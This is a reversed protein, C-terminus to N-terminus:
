TTKKYLDTYKIDHDKLWTENKKFLEHLDYPGVKVGHTAQYLREIEKKTAEVALYYAMEYRNTIEQAVYIRDGKVLSAQSKGNESYWRDNFILLDKSNKDKPPSKPDYEQVQWFFKGQNTFEKTEEDKYKQGGGLEDAKDKAWYGHTTMDKTCEIDGKENKVPNFSGCMTTNLGNKPDTAVTGTYLESIDSAEDWLESKNLGLPIFGCKKFSRGGGGIIEEFYGGRNQSDVWNSHAYFDALAHSNQGFANLIQSIWLDSSDVYNYDKRNDNIQKLSDAIWNDNERDTYSEYKSGRTPLGGIYKVKYIAGNNPNDFHNLPNCQGGGEIEGLFIPLTGYCNKGNADSHYNNLIIQSIIEDSFRFGKERNYQAFAARLIDGHGSDSEEVEREVYINDKGNFADDPLKFLGLPDIGAHPNGNLYVYRDKGDPTGLPDPSIYQHIQPNFYRHINYHLGTEADYYQGALRTNLTFSNTASPTQAEVPEARVTKNTTNQTLQNGWDDFRQQWLTQKNENTVQLPLGRWDTSVAYITNGEILSHLRHDLYLYQRTVNGGQSEEILKHANDYAFYTTQPPNTQSYVIKSVRNGTSDYRYRAILQQTSADLVAILQNATNWQLTLLKGANEGINPTHQTQRGFADLKGVHEPAPSNVKTTPTNTGSQANLAASLKVWLPVANKTAAKNPQWTTQIGNGHQVSQLAAITENFPQKQVQSILTNHTWSIPLTSAITNAFGQSTLNAVSTLWSRQLQISQTQGSNQKADYGYNLVQQTPLTRSLLKGSNDYSFQQTITSGPVKHKAPYVTQAQKIIQGFANRAFTQESSCGKLSQLLTGEYVLTDICPAEGDASLERTLLQGAFNFHLTETQTTKRDLGIRTQTQQEGAGLKDDHVPKFTTIITGDEPHQEYVIRGFDDRLQQRVIDEQNANNPRSKAELAQTIPMPFSTQSPATIVVGEIDSPTLTARLKGAEDRLWMRGDVVKGQANTSIQALLRDQQDYAWNLQEGQSNTLTTAQGQANYQMTQRNGDAGTHAIRRGFADYEAQLVTMKQQSNEDIEGEVNLLWATRTIHSPQNLSNASNSYNISTQIQRAGDKLTSAIVRGTGGVDAKAVQLSEVDYSLQTIVNNPAIVQTLYQGLKDYQYQTIDSDRPTNNKGNPLPGDVEVLLSRNNITRYRYTITRTIQTPTEEHQGILAPRYGLETVKTPQGHQNYTIHWQREKGAVVSPMAILSPKNAVYVPEEVARPASNLQPFSPTNAYAYRVKLTPAQAKGNIYGVNSIRIPRGIPDYETYTTQLGQLKPTKAATALSNIVKVQTNHSLRGLKDYGYVRNTEGCEACGAGVVQLLRPEGAILTYAYTTTQGLSNTLITQGLQGNHSIRPSPNTSHKTNKTQIPSVVYSLTVQEIGTGTKPKGNADLQKPLGHVSLVGRGYTDYAWTRLRQQQQNKGTQWTLKIGTLLHSAHPIVPQRHSGVMHASVYAPEGYLYRRQLSTKDSSSHPYEVGILNSIGLSKPDNDHHYTYRGVPTDIAVIGKFGAQYKNAYHMVLSRGQPDTVKLLEGRLGRTLKVSEGTPATIRTLKGRHNFHLQKGDLWYWTYEDGKPTHYIMVHGQAPNQCACDSPNISSRNFIVRSGDAQHIYIQNRVIQLDTEYSLRWGYGIQGLGMHLSNYHRVIEIGMMGPLAPMDDERQYKNGTIVNIPNGAGANTQSQNGQSAINSEGCANPNGSPDTCAPKNGQAPLGSNPIGNTDYISPQNPDTSANPVSTQQGSTVAGAQVLSAIGLLGLLLILLNVLQHLNTNTLIKPMLYAMRSISLFYNM